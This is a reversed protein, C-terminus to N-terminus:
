SALCLLRASVLATFGIVEAFLISIRLAPGPAAAASFVIGAGVGCGIVAWALAWLLLFRGTPMGHAISTPAIPTAEPQPTM